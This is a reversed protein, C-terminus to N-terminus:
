RAKASDIRSVRVRVSDYFTRMMSPDSGMERLEKFFTENTYGQATLLSDLRHKSAASDGPTLRLVVFHAYTDILKENLSTDNACGYATALSLFVSLLKKSFM